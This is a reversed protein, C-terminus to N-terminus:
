QKAAISLDNSFLHKESFELFNSAADQLGATGLFIVLISDVPEM